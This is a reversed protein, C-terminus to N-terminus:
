SCADRNRTGGARTSAAARHAGADGPWRLPPDVPHHPREGAHCVASDRNQPLGRPLSKTQFGTCAVGSTPRPCLWRPLHWLPRIPGGALRNLASFASRPNSDRGERGLRSAGAPRRANPTGNACVRRYSLPYLTPNRVWLGCTRIRGPTGSELIETDFWPFRGSSIRDDATGERVSHSTGCVARARIDLALSTDRRCASPLLRGELLEDLLVQKM